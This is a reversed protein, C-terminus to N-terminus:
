PLPVEGTSAQDIEARVAKRELWGETPSVRIWSVRQHRGEPQEAVLILDQTSAM